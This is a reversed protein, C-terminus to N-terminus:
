LHDTNTKTRREKGRGDASTCSPFPVRVLKDPSIRSLGWLCGIAMELVEVRMEQGRSKIEGVNVGAGIGEIVSFMGAWVEAVPISTQRGAAATLLLNNLAELARLHLISLLSTTPPHPSPLPAAPPFSLTTPLSLATLKSPLSLSLVDHFNFGSRMIEAPKGNPAQVAIESDRAALILDEDALDDDELM